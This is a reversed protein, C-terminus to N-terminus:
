VGDWIRWINYIEVESVFSTWRCVSQCSGYSILGLCVAHPHLCVPTFSHVGASCQFLLLSWSQYNKTKKENRASCFLCINEWMHIGLHYTTIVLLLFQHTERYIQIEFKNIDPLHSNRTLTTKLVIQNMCFTRSLGFFLYM